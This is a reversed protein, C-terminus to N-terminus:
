AVIIDELLNRMTELFWLNLEFDATLRIIITRNSEDGWNQSAFVSRLMAEDGQGDFTIFGKQNMLILQWLRPTLDKNERFTVIVKRSGTLAQNVVKKIEEEMQSPNM